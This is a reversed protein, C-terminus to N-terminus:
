SSASALVPARMTTRRRDSTMTSAGPKECDNRAFDVSSDLAGNVIATIGPHFRRPGFGIYLPGQARAEDGVSGRILPTAERPKPRM